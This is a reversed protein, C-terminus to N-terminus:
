LYRYSIAFGDYTFIEGRIGINVAVQSRIRPNIMRRPYSVAVGGMLSRVLGLSSTFADEM